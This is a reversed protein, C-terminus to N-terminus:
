LVPAISNSPISDTREINDETIMFTSTEHSAPSSIRDFDAMTHVHRADGRQRNIGPNAQPEQTPGGNELRTAVRFFTKM